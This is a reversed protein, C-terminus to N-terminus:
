HRSSYYMSSHLKLTLVCWMKIQKIKQHNAILIVINVGRVILANFNYNYWNNQAALLQKPIYTSSMFCLPTNFTSHVGTATIIVALCMQMQM